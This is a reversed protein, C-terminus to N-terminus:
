YADEHGVCGDLSRSCHRQRARARQGFQQSQCDHQGQRGRQARWGSTCRRWASYGGQGIRRSRAFANGPDHIQNGHARYACRCGCCWRRHPNRGRAGHRRCAGCLGGRAGAGDASRRQDSHRSCCRLGPGPRGVFDLRRGADQPRVGDPSRQQQVRHQGGREVRGEFSGSEM